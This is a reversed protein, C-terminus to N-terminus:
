SIKIYNNSAKYYLKMKQLLGSKKLRDTLRSFSFICHANNLMQIYNIEFVQIYTRNIGKYLLHLFLTQREKRHPKLLYFLSSLVYYFM